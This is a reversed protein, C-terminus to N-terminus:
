SVWWALRYFNVWRIRNRSSTVWQMFLIKCQARTLKNAPLLAHNDYVVKIRELNDREKGRLEEM